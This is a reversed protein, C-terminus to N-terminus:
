LDIQDSVKINHRKAFDYALRTCEDEFADISHSDDNIIVKLDPHNLQYKSVADWFQVYPYKYTSEDELPIGLFKNRRIGNANIELYVNNQYAAEIIENAANLCDDDFTPYSFMFLEPHALIKFLGTKLAKVITEKYVRIDDKNFSKAYVSKYQGNVVIEHQGLVLYDLEERMRTIQTIYDEYFEIEVAGLLTIKSSYEKKLKNIVSLYDNYYETKSMRRSRLLATLEDTLPGHDSIGLVKYNLSVAKDLYEKITGTAHKCLYIHTHYNSIRM